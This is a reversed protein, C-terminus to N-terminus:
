VKVLRLRSMGVVLIGLLTISVAIGVVYIAVVGYGQAPDLFPYPVWGDTAGRVLVVTTWGAPYLLFWWVHRLLLRARDSFLLWDLVAYVPIIKHVIDNSWPVSASVNAGTLLTNYVIGTTAIYVTAAGRLVSVALDARKRRVAAVLTVALAVAVILNSQITFYGFFNWFSYTPTQSSELWQAVVAVVIAIVAILRLSNVLTRM